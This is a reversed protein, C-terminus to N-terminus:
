VHYRVSALGSLGKREENEESTGLAIAMVKNRGFFMRGIDKWDNRVEKLHSNRM